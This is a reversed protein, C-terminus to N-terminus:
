AIAPKPAFVRLRQRLWGWRRASLWFGLCAEAVAGRWGEAIPVVQEARYFLLLWTLDSSDVGFKFQRWDVQWFASARLRWLKAVATLPQPIQLFLDALTFLLLDIEQVPRLLGKHQAFHALAHLAHLSLHQRDNAAPALLAQSPLPLRWWPTLAFHLDVALRNSAVFTWEFNWQPPNPTAPQYGLSQLVLAARRLMSPAILLDIDQSPRLSPQPYLYQSTVFGKLPAVAIGEQQLSQMITVCQEMFIRQAQTAERSWQPTPKAAPWVGQEFLFGPWALFGM